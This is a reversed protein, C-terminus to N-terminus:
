KIKIFPRFEAATGAGICLHYMGPALDAVDIIFDTVDTKQQVTKVLQGYVNTIRIEGMPLSSNLNLKERVPNPFIYVAKERGYISRINSYSANGFVDVIKLKYHMNPAGISRDMLLYNSTSSNGGQATMTGLSSYNLLDESKLVEYHSTNAETRSSWTVKVHDEHEDVEFTEIEVTQEITTCFFIPSLAITRRTPDYNEPRRPDSYGKEIYTIEIRHIPETFYVNLTNRTGGDEADKEGLPHATVVNEMRSWAPSNSFAELIPMVEEQGRFGTIIVQDIRDSSDIETSTNNDIDFISFRTEMLLNDFTISATIASSTASPPADVRVQLSNSGDSFGGDTKSFRDTDDPAQSHKQTEDFHDTDGSFTISATLSEGDSGTMSMSHDLAGAPYGRWDLKSPLDSNCQSLPPKATCALIDSIGTFINGQHRFIMISIESANSITVNATGSVDNHSKNGNGMAASGTTSFTPELGEASLKATGGDTQIYVTDDLDIDYLSFQINHLHSEFDLNIIITDASRNALVLANGGASHGGADTFTPMQNPYGDATNGRLEITLNSTGLGYGAEMNGDVWTAVDWDIHSLVRGPCQAEVGPRLITYILISLIIKLM